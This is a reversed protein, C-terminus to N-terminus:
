IAAHRQRQGERGERGKASVVMAKEAAQSVEQLQAFTWNNACEVKDENEEHRLGEEDGDEMTLISHWCM